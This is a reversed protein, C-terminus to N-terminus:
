FFVPDVSIFDNCLSFTNKRKMDSKSPFNREKLHEQNKASPPEIGGRRLINSGMILNQYTANDRTMFLTAM